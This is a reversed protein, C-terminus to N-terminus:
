VEGASTNALDARLNRLLLGMSQLSTLLQSATEPGLRNQIAKPLEVDHHAASHASVLLLRRVFQDYLAAENTIRRALSRSDRDSKVERYKSVAETVEPFLRLNEGLSGFGSM